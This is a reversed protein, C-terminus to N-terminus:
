RRARRPPDAAGGDPDGVGHRDGRLAVDRDAYTVAPGDEAAADSKIQEIAENFGGSTLSSGAVRSM